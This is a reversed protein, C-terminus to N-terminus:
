FILIAPGTSCARSKELEQLSSERYFDWPFIYQMTLRVQIYNPPKLPPKKTQKKKLPPTVKHPHTPFLKHNV